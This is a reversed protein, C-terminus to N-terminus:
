LDSSLKCIYKWCVQFWHKRRWPSVRAVSCGLRCPSPFSPIFTVRKRWKGNILLHTGSTCVHARTMGLSPAMENAQFLPNAADGWSVSDVHKFYKIIKIQEKQCPTAHSWSIWVHLQNINQCAQASGSQYSRFKTQSLVIWFQYVHHYHQLLLLHWAQKLHHHTPMSFGTCRTRASSSGHSFWAPVSEQCKSFACSWSTENYSM